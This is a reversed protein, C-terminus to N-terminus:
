HRLVAGVLVMLAGTRGGIVLMLIACLLVTRSAGNTRRCVPRVAGSLCLVIVSLAILLVGQLVSFLGVFLHSVDPFWHWSRMLGGFDLIYLIGFVLVVLSGFLLLVRGLLNVDSDQARDQTSM